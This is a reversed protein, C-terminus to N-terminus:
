KTDKIQFKKWSMNKFNEENQILTIKTGTTLVICVAILCFQLGAIKAGWAQIHKFKWKLKSVIFLYELIKTLTKM